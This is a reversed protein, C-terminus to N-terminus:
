TIWGALNLQWFRVPLTMITNQQRAIMRKRLPHLSIPADTLSWRLFYKAFFQKEPEL